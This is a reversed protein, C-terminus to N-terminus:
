PFIAHAYLLYRDALDFGIETIRPRMGDLLDNELPTVSFGDPEKAKIGIASL